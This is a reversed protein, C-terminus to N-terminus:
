VGREKAYALQERWYKERAIWHKRDGPKAGVVLTTAAHLGSLCRKESHKDDAM